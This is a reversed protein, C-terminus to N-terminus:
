CNKVREHTFDQPLYTLKNFCSMLDSIQILILFLHFTVLENVNLNLM